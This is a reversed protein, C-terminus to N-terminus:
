PRTWEASLHEATLHAYTDALRRRWWQEREAPARSAAILQASIPPRAVPLAGDVALLRETVVDVSLLQGSGLGCAYDLAPLAAALAVGAALGVSTDLASSVVAPLRAAEVVRLAASIGGLPAVKVVILDAAERLGAVNSPDDAKRVGEDAALAIDVMRRVEVQEALTACPQEAYEIAFQDLERLAAIAAEVTWAGNADVRLRGDPGGEDLAARVAAVRAVDDDITQGPEAVKVKATRCGGSARVLQAASEPGVAPVIVNVPISERRAAPWEGWGAEVAAALWRAAEAPEYEVFPAWEGAGSPGDFLMAERVTVGRFRTVLPIAVVSAADLLEGLTPPATV